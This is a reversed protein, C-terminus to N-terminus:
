TGPERLWDGNQKMTQQLIRKLSFKNNQQQSNNSQVKMAKTTIIVNWKM